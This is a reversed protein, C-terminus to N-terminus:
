QRRRRLALGAFALLALSTPEPVVQTASGDREVFYWPGFNGNYDMPSSDNVFQYLPNGNITLIELDGADPDPILDFDATIGAGVVLDGITSGVPMYVYPWAGGTYDHYNPMPDGFDPEFYYITRTDATATGGDTAGAVADTLQLITNGEPLAYTSVTTQGFAATACVAVLALSLVTKM